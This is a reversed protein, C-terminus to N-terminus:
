VKFMLKSLIGSIDEILDEIVLYEVLLSGGHGQKLLKEMIRKEVILQLYLNILQIKNETIDENKPKCCYVLECNKTEEISM